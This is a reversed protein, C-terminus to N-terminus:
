IFGKEKAKRSRDQYKLFKRLYTRVLHCNSCVLDCKSIEELIQTKSFQNPRLIAFGIDFSKRDADRHDFQMVCIPFPKGCDFCPGSKIEEYWPAQESILRKWKTQRLRIEDKNSEYYKRQNAKIQERKKPSQEIAPKYNKRKNERLCDKCWPQLGDSTTNRKYFNKRPQPNGKCLSGNCFKMGDPPQPLEARQKAVLRLMRETGCEICANRYTRRPNIHGSPCAAVDMCQLDSYM